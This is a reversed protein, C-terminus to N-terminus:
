SRELYDIARRVIECRAEWATFTQGATRVEVISDQRVFAFGAFRSDRSAASMRRAIRHLNRLDALDFNAPITPYPALLQRQLDEPTKGWLASALTTARRANADAHMAQKTGFPSWRAISDFEDETM